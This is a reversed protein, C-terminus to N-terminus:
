GRIQDSKRGMCTFGTAAESRSADRTAWLAVAVAFLGARRDTGVM